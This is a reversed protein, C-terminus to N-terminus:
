VSPGYVFEGNNNAIQEDLNDTLRTTCENIDALMLKLKAASFTPSLKARIAKWREGRLNVLHEFFKDHKYSVTNANRDVFYTFDRVMVDHVLEPDRLVLLPKRGEFIGFYRHGESRDYLSQITDLLPKRGMATDTFNGFLPTPEDYLVGLRKWKGFHHTLYKYVLGIVLVVVTSLQVISFISGVDSM